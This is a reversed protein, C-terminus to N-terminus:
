LHLSLCISLCVSLRLYLCLSVSVSIYFSVYFSICCRCIYIHAHRLILHGKEEKVNLTYWKPPWLSVEHQSIVLYAPLYNSLINDYAHLMIMLIIGHWHQQWLFCDEFEGSAQAHAMEGRENVNSFFDELILRAEDEGHIPNKRTLGREAAWQFSREIMSRLPNRIMPRMVHLSWVSIVVPVASLKSKLPQVTKRCSALYIERTGEPLSQDGVQGQKRDPQKVQEVPYDPTWCEQLGWAKGTTPAASCRM